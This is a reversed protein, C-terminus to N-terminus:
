TIRPQSTPCARATRASAMWTVISIAPMASVTANTSASSQPMAPAAAADM